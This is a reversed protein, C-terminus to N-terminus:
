CLPVFQRDIYAYGNVSMTACIVLAVHSPVEVLADAEGCIVLPSRIFAHFCVLESKYLFLIGHSCLVMTSDAWAVETKLSVHECSDSQHSFRHVAAWPLWIHSVPRRRRRCSIVSDVVDM